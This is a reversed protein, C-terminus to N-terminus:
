FDDITWVNSDSTSGQYALHKGDPSPLLRGVGQRYGNRMLPEVQGAATIHLLNISDNKWSTLFFAKGDGAWAISLPLGVPPKPSIEHWATDSFTLVEIRGYHNVRGILALRSGDPAVDWDIQLRRVEAKGLEKFRAKYRISRISSSTM